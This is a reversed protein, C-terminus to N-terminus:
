RGALAQPGISSVAVTPIRARIRTGQGPASAVELTGKLRMARERM